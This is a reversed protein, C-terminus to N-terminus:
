VRDIDRQEAGDFKAGAGDLRIRVVRGEADHPLRHPPHDVVRGARTSAGLAARNRDGALGPAGGLQAVLLRPRLEALRERHRILPMLWGALILGFVTPLAHQSRTRAVMLTKRHADSLDALRAVLGDIRGALSTLVTRLRLVLATDIIDQSTAGWHVYDAADGGVVQRLQAVLAPVPVGSSATGAGLAALDPEFDALAQDITSAAAEPMVGVRVQGRALAREVQVMARAVEADAFQAAVEPDSFLPGYIASDFPSVTM